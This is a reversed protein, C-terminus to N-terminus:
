GKLYAIDKQMSEIADLINVYEIPKGQANVENCVYLGNHGNVILLNVELQNGEATNKIVIDNANLTGVTLDEIYTKLSKSGVKTNSATLKTGDASLTTGGLTISGGTIEIDKFKAKGNHYLQINAGTTSSYSPAGIGIAVEGGSKITTYTTNSGSTYPAYIFSDTKESNVAINWLGIKGRTATIKGTLEANSAVLNGSTDVNFNNGIKISGGSITKGTITTGSINEAILGTTNIQKATLQGTINAAAVKLNTADIQTAVLQGTVNAASVKLESADIQNAVLKGKINASNVQLNEAVVNTTKIRDDTIETFNTDSGSSLTLKKGDWILANALNLTGDTMGIHSGTGNTKSYNPSYIDGGIISAGMIYPATLFKATLGYGVSTTFKDNKDDYYTYNHKGLACEVSKWNNTTFGLINSTLIVQEDSYTGTIDDYARGILGRKTFSFTQDDSNNINILASNLGDQYWKYINEQATSGQEAQKVVADYSSAMSQASSLISEVDNMFGDEETATSFTVNITQIDDFSIEYGILRLKYLKGDVKIRLWNGLEFYDVIPEFEPILLLNYLTSTITIQKECSKKLERKAVKLFEKAKNIIEANDLGDSVYNSNSYVDERKYACFISYLDGLYTEFNLESQIATMQNQVDTLENEKEVIEANREDIEAQCLKLKEYYPVYLEDYLDAEESAQDMEVLVDLASQIADYFSTLRNLSYYNLYEKFNDLDEAGLVDFITDEDDESAIAKAMKQQIFTPYNDNVEITLTETEAIDEEDSYNTVKFKGQWTGKHCTRDDEKYEGVYTYKSETIDLKVYGTKVYVRAYNKLAIEISATSTNESVKSLAVPSLNEMTLKEVETQATVEAQEINPMMSSELYLIDDILEYSQLLLDEYEETYSAYLKDYEDIKQVLEKPMDNRQDESIYYIKDSGNQNLSIVAATITDDGAELKFCNKVNDPSEEYHIADTLNTKDILITTDEGFTPLRLNKSGCVPCEDTFEGRENCDKCTSYLDYVSISRDTSDFQFLCGIETSCDGTLFDYVPTGDVSFTRQINWLSDEVYKIKYHPVFSMVRHLLSAKTNYPNYFVTAVYNDREIDEDTNIELDYINTQGLEAECLSKATINKYIDNSDDLDVTIEYYEDLEKVWILKHNIINEWLTERHKEATKYMSSNEEFNNTILTDKYVSFSMENASNMNAANRVSKLGNLQGLHRKDRTSLVITYDEVIGNKFRIKAM